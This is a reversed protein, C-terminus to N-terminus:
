PKWPMRPITAPYKFYGNALNLWATPSNERITKASFISIGTAGDRRAIAIQKDM